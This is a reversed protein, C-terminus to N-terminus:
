DALEAQLRTVEFTDNRGVLHERIFDLYRQVVRSEQATDKWTGHQLQHLEDAADLVSPEVYQLPKGKARALVGSMIRLTEHPAYRHLDYDLNRGLKTADLKHKFAWLVVEDRLEATVTELPRTDEPTVGGVTRPPLGHMLNRVFKAPAGIDSTVLEELASTVLRTNVLHVPKDALTKYSAVQEIAPDLNSLFSNLLARANALTCLMVQATGHSTHVIVNQNDDAIM